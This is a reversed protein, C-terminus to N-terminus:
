IDLSKRRIFDFADVFSKPLFFFVRSILKRLDIEFNKPGNKFESTLKRQGKQISIM